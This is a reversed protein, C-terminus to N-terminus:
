AARPMAFRRSNQGPGATRWRHGYIRRRVSSLSEIPNPHSARVASGEAVGLRDWAAESLGAEDAGLLDSTVQHLTAVIERGNASLLVRTQPTLGESRCVHCDTRMYVVAEQHTRIGLRRAKLPSSSRQASAILDIAASASM